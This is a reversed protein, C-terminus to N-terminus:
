TIVDIITKIFVTEIKNRTLGIASLLYYYFFMFTLFFGKKNSKHDSKM